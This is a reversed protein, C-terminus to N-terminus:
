PWASDHETRDGARDRLDVVDLVEDIRRALERSPM